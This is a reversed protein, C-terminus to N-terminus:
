FIRSLMAWTGSEDKVYDVQLDGYTRVLDTLFDNAKPSVASIRGVEKGNHFCVLITKHPDLEEADPKQQHLKQHLQTTM